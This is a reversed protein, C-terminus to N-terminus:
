TLLVHCAQESKQVRVHKVCVQMTSAPATSTDISPTSGKTTGGKADNQIGATLQNARSNPREALLLSSVRLKRTSRLVRHERQLMRVHFAGVSAIASDHM